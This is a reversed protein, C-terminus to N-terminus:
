LVAAPINFVFIAKPILPAIAADKFILTAAPPNLGGGLSVALEM